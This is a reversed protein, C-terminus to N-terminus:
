DMFTTFPELGQERWGRKFILFASTLSWGAARGQKDVVTALIQPEAARLDILRIPNRWEIKYQGGPIQYAGLFGMMM